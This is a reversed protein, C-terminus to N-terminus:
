MITHLRPAKFSRSPIFKMSNIVAVKRSVRKKKKDNEKESSSKYQKRAYPSTEKRVIDFVEISPLGTYYSINKETILNKFLNRSKNM